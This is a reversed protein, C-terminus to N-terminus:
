LGLLGNAMNQIRNSTEAHCCLLLDIWKGVHGNSNHPGGPADDTGLHGAPYTFQTRHDGAAIVYQNGPGTGAQGVLRYQSGLGLSTEHHSYGGAQVEAFVYGFIIRGGPAVVSNDVGAAAEHTAFDFIDATAIHHDEGSSTGSGQALEGDGVVFALHDPHQLMGSANGVVQVVDDLHDVLLGPGHDAVIGVRFLQHRVQFFDILFLDQGPM